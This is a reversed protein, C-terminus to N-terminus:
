QYVLGANSFFWPHNKLTDIYAQEQGAPVEIVGGPLLTSNVVMELNFQRVTSDWDIFSSKYLNTFKLDRTQAYTSVTVIDYTKDIYQKSQLISDLLYQAGATDLKYDINYTYSISLNLTDTVFLGAQVFDADLNLTFQIKGPVPEPQPQEVPEYCATLLISLTILVPILKKM